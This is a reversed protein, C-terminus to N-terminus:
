QVLVRKVEIGQPSTLRVNYLGKAYRSLDIITQTDTIKSEYISSGVTNIISVNAPQSVENNIALTFQGTNPNPYIDFLIKDLNNSILQQKETSAISLNNSSLSNGKNSHNSIMMAPYGGCPDIYAHFDGGSASRFGNQLYIKNGAKYIVNTGATITNGTGIDSATSYINDRTGYFMPSTTTTNSLTLDGAPECFLDSEWLGRGWTGARIKNGKYNIELWRVSVNPLNTMFPEWASMSANRYYVGLDNAVYLGDNSSNEYIICNLPINPLGTAYETWTGGGDTTMKLKNNADFGSMAIWIKNPNVNSVAISQFWEDNVGIHPTPTIEQWQYTTGNINGGSTTKFIRNYDTSPTSYGVISAYINNPASPSVTIASISQYFGPQPTMEGVFNSIREWNLGDDLTRWVQQRGFYAIGNNSQTIPPVFLSPENIDITHNYGSWTSGRNTSRVLEGNVLHPYPDYGYTCSIMDNDAVDNSSILQQFGDGSPNTNLYKWRQNFTLSGDYLHVHNDQMGVLIVDPNNVSSSFANVTAINLGNNLQTFSNTAINIKTLGGDTCAFLTNSDYPYFALERIDDHINSLQGGFSTGNTSKQLKYSGVYILNQDSPSIVVPIKTYDDQIPSSIQTWSSGNYKYARKKSGPDEYNVTALILSPNVPTVAINIRIPPYLDYPSASFDLGTSSGTLSAWNAGGDTSQMIDTGSAYITGNNSNPKFLINRFYGSILPATGWDCNSLADTTKYIGNSTTIYITNSGTLGGVTAYSLSDILIKGIEHYTVGNFLGTNIAHWTSGGDTSQYMGYCLTSFRPDDRDGTAIYIINGNNPDVAVDAIHSTPLLFDTNLNAWNQGGDTTKWLGGFPSGVYFTNNTLYNPDFAISSLRGNYIYNQSPSFPGLPQWNSTGVSASRASPNDKFYDNYADIAKNFNGHPYLRPLWYQEWRDLQTVEGDDDTSDEPVSTVSRYYDRLDYFNSTTPLNIQGQAFLNFPFFLFSILLLRFIRYIM